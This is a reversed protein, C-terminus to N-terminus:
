QNLVQLTILAQLAATEARLRLKGLSVSSFDHRFAAEVEAESFDGEPGILIKASNPVAYLNKLLKEQGTPCYAIFKQGSFPAEILTKFSKFYNIKPLWLNGSQKLASIAIKQMRELDLKARESYTSGFFSIESVGCEIAKEVFWEMKERKKLLSLAIHIEPLNPNSTEVENVIIVCVKPHAEKINGLFKTGRGNLILVQENAACRLVKVAHHSETADLVIETDQSDANHSFFIKM